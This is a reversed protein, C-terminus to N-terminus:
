KLILMTIIIGVLSGIWFEAKIKLKGPQNIQSIAKITNNKGSIISDKLEIKHFLNNIISDKISIDKSQSTCLSDYQMKLTDCLLKEKRIARYIPLPMCVRDGQVEFQAIVNFSLFFLSIKLITKM